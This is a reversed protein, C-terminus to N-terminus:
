ARETFTIIFSERVTVRFRVTVTIAISESVAVVDIVSMHPALEIVSKGEDITILEGDMKSLPGVAILPGPTIPAGGRGITYVIMM